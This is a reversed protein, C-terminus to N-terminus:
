LVGQSLNGEQPLHALTTSCLWGPRCDGGHRCSPPTQARIHPRRVDWTGARWNHINCVYVCWEYVCWVCVCWVHGGCVWVKIKKLLRWYLKLNSDMITTLSQALLEELSFTSCPQDKVNGKGTSVYTYVYRCDSFSEQAISVHSLCRVGQLIKSFPPCQTIQLRSLTCFLCAEYTTCHYLVQRGVCSVQTRDRPWSSGQFYSGAVWELM